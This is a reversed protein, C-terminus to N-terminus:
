TLQELDGPRDIDIEGGEMPVEALLCPPNMLVRRAGVDGRLALLEPLVSCPFVAPIGRVGTYASAVVVEAGLHRFERLLSAIHEGTIRPQDCTLLLVGAADPAHLRFAHLGARISSAIGEDWIENMVVVVRTLDVECRVEEAHAGLVVFVPEAGGEEAARIARALLSEGGFRALQKPQGLRRSAGAALIIAPVDQRETM